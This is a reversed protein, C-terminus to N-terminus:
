EDFNRKRKSKSRGRYRKFYRGYNWFMGAFMFVGIVIHYPPWDPALGTTAPEAIMAAFPEDVALMTLIHEQELFLSTLAKRHEPNEEIELAKKFYISRKIAQAKIDKKIIKDATEYIMKLLNVAFEPDPHLYSLHRLSTAAVPSITINEKFYASLEEPSRITPGDAFLFRKGRKVGDVVYSNEEMLIKAVSPGLLIHEFRMFDTSEASGISDVMYKKAFSSNEPFFASIDTGGSREAPAIMMNATHRPTVIILFLVAFMLGVFAGIFVYVRAAWSDGIADGLNKKVGDDDDEHPTIEPNKQVM